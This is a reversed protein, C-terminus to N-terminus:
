TQIIIGDKCLVEMKGRIGALTFGKSGQLHCNEEILMYTLIARLTFHLASTFGRYALLPYVQM